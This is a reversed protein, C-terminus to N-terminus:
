AGGVLIQVMERMKGELGALTATLTPPDIGLWNWSEEDLPATLPVDSGPVALVRATIDALHLIRAGEPHAAGGPHHHHAVAEVIAYPIDWKRLIMAGFRAHNFGLIDQEVEHPVSTRRVANLAEAHRPLAKALALKGIDHLLGALFHREPNPLRRLAALEKAIVGTAVCHEWYVDMNFHRPPLQNAMNLVMRGLALAHLQSTGVISVARPISDIKTPFNYFASNVIHLLITSLSPDLSIVDAMEKATSAPNSTVRELQVAVEPMAPLSVTSALTKIDPQELSGVPGNGNDRPLYDKPRASMERALAPIGLDLLLTTFPHGLDHRRLMAKLFQEAQEKTRSAAPAPQDPM